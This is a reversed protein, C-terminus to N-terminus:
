NILDSLFWYHLVYNSISGKQRRLTSFEETLNYSVKPNKAWKEEFEKRAKELFDQVSFFFVVILLM